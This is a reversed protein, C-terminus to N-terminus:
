MFLFILQRPPEPHAGGSVSFDALSESFVKLGKHYEVEQERLGPKKFM